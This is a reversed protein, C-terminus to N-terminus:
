TLHQLARNRSIFCYATSIPRWVETTTYRCSGVTRPGPLSKDSSDSFKPHESVFLLYIQFLNSVQQLLDTAINMVTEEQTLGGKSSTAKPQLSAITVLMLKSASLQSAIDANTHQGFAEPRDIIPWTQIFERHTQLNGDDPIHYIPITSLPFNPVSVAEQCYFQNLYSSLVRRDIEDTVRGGYNAESILFKLADFPTVEYADLYTKLLDDSVQM